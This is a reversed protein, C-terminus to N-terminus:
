SPKIASRDNFLLNVLRGAGLRDNLETVAVYVLFSLVLWIQVAAFHRWTFADLAEHLAIAFGREDFRFHVFQEALRVVSVAITYFATKYLIPQILPAHRFRDIISFKDTVLIVKGVILAMTTAFLFHSLAFWYHRVLLNSTLVILNFVCFFYITPPLILRLEKALFRGARVPWSIM